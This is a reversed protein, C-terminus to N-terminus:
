GCEGSGSRQGVLASFRPEALRRSRPVTHATGLMTHATGLMTRDTGRVLRQVIAVGESNYVQSAKGESALEHGASRFWRGYERHVPNIRRIEGDQDQCRDDLGPQPGNMWLKITSSHSAPPGTMLEWFVATAWEDVTKDHILPLCTARDNVGLFGSHGM